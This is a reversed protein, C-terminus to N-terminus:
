WFLIKDFTWSRSHIGFIFPVSSFCDKVASRWCFIPLQFAAILSCSFEKAEVKRKQGWTLRQGVRTHLRTHTHETNQLREACFCSPESDRQHRSTTNHDRFWLSSPWFHRFLQDEATPQSIAAQTYFRQELSLRACAWTLRCPAAVQTCVAM